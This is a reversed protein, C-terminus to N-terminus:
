FGQLVREEVWMLGMFLAFVMSFGLASSALGESTASHLKVGESTWAKSSLCWLRGKEEKSEKQLNEPKSPNHGRPNLTSLVLASARASSNTTEQM